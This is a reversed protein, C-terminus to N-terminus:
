FHRKTSVVRQQKFCLLNYEKRAPEPCRYAYIRLSGSLLGCFIGGAVKVAASQTDHTPKSKTAGEVSNLDVGGVQYFILEFTKGAMAGDSFPFLMTKGYFADIMNNDTM